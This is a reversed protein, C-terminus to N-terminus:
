PLIPRLENGDADVPYLAEEAELQAVMAQVMAYLKEPNQQAINQSEAFDDKLNFLEYHSSQKNMKPYYHYVLKWDGNRYSTFYKSRHDHPFHMLFVDPHAEDSQGCLLKSLGYGDYIHEAPNTAGAIELITPYLDMITGLQTQITGQAIPLRQQEPNSANPKAWAAIFPVRMGGEYHTAKKGLLPASSAVTHTGGLPADSGNDGWFFILTNEAVGLTDLHDMIDGLSKDMGEVLTAFAKAHKSKDSDVYNPAFRPDSHFPSHLAYHSMLLFFPEDAEVSQTIEKNAELTLAETLFTDTDYYAELHPVNHTVKKGYKPHNGYHDSAYYSKPRGWCAGGINVDFGLNLPDSGESDLPGFHAKGLFLTRYGASKLVHPLTVDGKKLGTWNWAEPGFKGRNNGEPRIWQTTGHRTANQGTMVTARTPSCVSQAYFTSFRTGQAALRAMSPTRYWENLPYVVPEGADDTLFPVSTDMVGMDDVLFIIINPKDTAIASTALAVVALLSAAFPNM